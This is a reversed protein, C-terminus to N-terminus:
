PAVTGALPPAGFTASGAVLSGPQEPQTRHLVTSITADGLYEPVARSPPEAVYAVGTPYGGVAQGAFWLPLGTSLLAELPAAEAATLRPCTVSVREVPPRDPARGSLANGHVGRVVPPQRPEPVVRHGGQDVPIAVWAAGGADWVVLVPMPDPATPAPM